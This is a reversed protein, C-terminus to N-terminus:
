ALSSAIHRSVTALRGFLGVFIVELPGAAGRVIDEEMLMGRVIFSRISLDLPANACTVTQQHRVPNALVGTSPPMSAFQKLVAAVEPKTAADDIARQVPDYDPKPPVISLLASLRKEM